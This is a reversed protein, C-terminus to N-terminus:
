VAKRYFDELAAAIIKIDFLQKCLNRYATRNNEGFGKNFLHTFASFLGQQDESEAILEPHDKKIMKAIGCSPMILTPTGVSLAELVIMPFPENESPLVLMASQSLVKQVENPALSGRYEVRALNPNSRIHKEIDQLQGGDPGYILFNAELGNQYAQKALNLFWYPRKRAHLRACFIINPITPEVKFGYTELVQIGNPLIENPCDFHLPSIEALEQSSLVFNSRSNKLAFRTFLLDFIKTFLRNDQIVMGHTQTFYPKRLLTCIFATLVPILDRAFHIHVVDSSKILSFLKKPLKNSWLTSVPFRNYLPRVIEFIEVLGQNQEPISHAQAGTFIQTEHGRKQLESCLERAVKNPGGYEGRAGSLTLVHLIRLSNQTAPIDAGRREDSYDPKGNM